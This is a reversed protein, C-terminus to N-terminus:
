YPESVRWSRHKNHSRHVTSATGGPLSFVIHSVHDQKALIKAEEGMAKGFFTKGAYEMGTSADMVICVKGFSGRGLEKVEPKYYFPETKAISLDPVPPMSEEVEKLFRDRLGEHDAPANSEEVIVRFILNRATTIFIAPCDPFMIWVFERRTGANQSGYQVSTKIRDRLHTLIVHRQKSITISFTQRGINYSGEQDHEGCYIDCVAQDSGFIWGKSINKPRSNLHLRLEPESYQVNSRRDRSDDRPTSERRSSDRVPFGQFSAPVYYSRNHPHAWAVRTRENLAVLRALIPPNTKDM